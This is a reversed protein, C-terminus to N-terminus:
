RANVQETAEKMERMVENFSEETFQKGVSRKLVAVVYAFVSGMISIADSSPIREGRKIQMDLEIEEKRCLNLQRRSEAETMAATASDGTAGLYLMPVLRSAEYLKAGKPGENFPLPEAVKGIKERTM